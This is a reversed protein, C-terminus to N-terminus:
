PGCNLDDPIPGGVNQWDDSTLSHGAAACAIRIWGTPDLEWRLVTGGTTATWLVSGTHDWELNTQYGVDRADLYEYQRVRVDGLRLGSATDWVVIRGDGTITALRDGHPSLAMRDVREAAIRRVVRSAQMDWILLSSRGDTLALWRGNSTYAAAVVPIGFAPGPRAKGTHLDLLRTGGDPQILLLEAGDPRLTAGERFSYREGGDVLNKIRGDNTALTAVSGDDGIIVFTSGDATPAVLRRGLDDSGPYPWSAIQHVAEGSVKWVGISQWGATLLKGDPRFYLGGAVSTDKVAVSVNGTRPDRLTLKTDDGVWAVTGDAPSVALGPSSSAEAMDPLHPGVSRAIRAQQRLDWLALIRQSASVLRERGGVFVLDTITAGVGPLPDTVLGGEQAADGYEEYPLDAQVVSITGGSAVAVRSADPAITLASALTRSALPFDRTTRNTATDSVLVGYKHYGFWRRDSSYGATYGGAPTQIGTWDTIRRLPSVSWRSGSGAGGGLLLEKGGARFAVVEPVGGDTDASGALRGSVVDFLKVRDNDDVMAVQLGAPDLAVGTVTPGKDQLVTTHRTTTDVVMALGGSGGVAVQRGHEDVAVATVRQDLDAIVMPGRDGDLGWVRVTGDEGGTAVRTGDVFPALATVPTGNDAFRVLHPSATVAQFLAAETQPTRQQRYAQVAFLMSLDLRQPINAVAVSAVQRATALRTQERATNRQGVAVFAAIVALITLLGLLTVGGRALRLTRRHHRIDEGILDDKPLGRIPATLDAVCERFSPNRLSVHRAQRAWRLDVWLPERTFWGLASPPLATTLAPDFAQRTDNWALEGGTLGILVSSASRHARWWAVEQDVWRSAAAEASALVVFYRSGALAQEITPWLEPTASLSTKDRFVRLARRRYWPKGLSQLGTQLAPALQGDAAHSYSIFADYGASGRMVVDAGSTLTEAMGEGM